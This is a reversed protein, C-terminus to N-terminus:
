RECVPCFGPAERVREKPPPTSPVATRQQERRVKEMVSTSEESDEEDVEIGHVEDWKRITNGVRSVSM